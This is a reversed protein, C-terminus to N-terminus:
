FRGHYFLVLAQRSSCILGFLSLPLRDSVNRVLLIDVLESNVFPCVLHWRALPLSSCINSANILEILEEDGGDKVCVDLHGM